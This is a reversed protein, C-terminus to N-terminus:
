AADLDDTKVYHATTERLREVLILSLNFLIRAAVAPMREMAKTMTDQSLVLVEADETAVVDASRPEAALYAMEGFIAGRGFAALRKKGDRVEVMGSILVYLEHGVEGKAVITKGAPCDIVTALRMFRSADRYDLNMLLPIGHHPVQNLKRTLFNWFTEEDMAAPQPADAIEPFARRFWLVTERNHDLTRAVAQIPSRVKTLHQLDGTPLVMPVRLGRSPDEFNEHYRRYGLREMPAVEAPAANVFDFSSGRGHAIKYGATLLIGALKGDAESADVVLRDTFSVVLGPVEAFRALGYREHMYAPIKALPGAVIRVTAVIIGRHALYIHQAVADIEDALRKKLHDIGAEDRGLQEVTVRYRFRYVADREEPTRAILVAIKQAESM